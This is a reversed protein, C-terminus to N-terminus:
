VPWRRRCIGFRRDATREYPHAWGPASPRFAEDRGHFRFLVVESERLFLSTRRIAARQGAAGSRPASRRGKPPLRCQGGAANSLNAFNASKGMRPQLWGVSLRNPLGLAPKADDVMKLVATQPVHLGLMVGRREIIKTVLAASQVDGGLARAYFTEQLEDLRELALSHNRVKDTIVGDAFYDIIKNIEAATTGHAKAIARV